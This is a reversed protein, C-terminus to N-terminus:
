NEGAATLTLRVGEKRTLQAWYSKGNFRIDPLVLTLDNSLVSHACGDFSSDDLVVDADTLVFDLTNPVHRFDARFTNGQFDIIPVHLKFDSSLTVACATSTPPPTRSCDAIAVADSALALVGTTVLSVSGSAIAGSSDSSVISTSSSVASSEAIAFAGCSGISGNRDAKLVWATGGGAGFSSSYGAM